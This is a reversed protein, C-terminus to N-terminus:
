ISIITCVHVYGNAKKKVVDNRFEEQRKHKQQLLRSIETLGLPYAFNAERLQQPFLVSRFSAFFSRMLSVQKKMMIGLLIEGREGSQIM